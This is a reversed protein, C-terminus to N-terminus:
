RHHASDVPALVAVHRQVTDVPVIPLVAASPLRLHEGIVDLDAGIAQVVRVGDVVPSQLVLDRAEGSGIQDVADTM